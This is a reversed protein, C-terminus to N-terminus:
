VEIDVVEIEIVNSEDRREIQWWQTHNASHDSPYGDTALEITGGSLDDLTHIVGHGHCALPFSSLVAVGLTFGTYIGKKKEQM